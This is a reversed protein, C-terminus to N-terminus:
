RHLFDFGWRGLPQKCWALAAHDVGFGCGEMAETTVDFSQGDLGLGNTVVLSPHVMLDKLGGSVGLLVTNGLLGKADVGASGGWGGVTVTGAGDEDEAAASELGTTQSSSASVTSSSSCDGHAADPEDHGVLCASELAAEGTEAAMAVATNDLKGTGSWCRSNGSPSSSHLRWLSDTCHYLSGVCCYYRCACPSFILAFALNSLICFSSLGKKGWYHRNTETLFVICLQSMYCRSNLLEQSLFVGRKEARPGCM